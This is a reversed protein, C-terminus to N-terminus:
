PVKPHFFFKHEINQKDSFNGDLFICSDLETYFINTIFQYKFTYKNGVIEAVIQNFPMDQLLTFCKSM